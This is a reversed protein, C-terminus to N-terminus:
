DNIIWATNTYISRTNTSGDDSLRRKEGDIFFTQIHTTGIEPSNSWWGKSTVSGIFRIGSPYVTQTDANTNSIKEKRTINMRFTTGDLSRTLEKQSITLVVGNNNRWTGYFDSADNTSSKAPPISPPAAAPPVATKSATEEKRSPSGVETQSM